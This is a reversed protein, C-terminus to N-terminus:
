EVAAAREQALRYIAPNGRYWLVALHWRKIKWGSPTRVSQIKFIGGMTISRDGISNNLFHEAVTFCESDAEEARVVHILNSIIHQTADFGLNVATVKAVWSDSSTVVGVHKGIVRDTHDTFDFHVDGDAMCERYTKWDRQDNALAQRFILETLAQKDILEQVIQNAM